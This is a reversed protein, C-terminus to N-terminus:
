PAVEEEAAHAFCDRLRLQFELTGRGDAILDYLELTQTHHSRQALLLAIKNDLEKKKGVVWIRHWGFGATGLITAVLYVIVAGRILRRASPHTDQTEKAM